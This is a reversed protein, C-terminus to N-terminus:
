YLLAWMVPSQVWQPRSLLSTFCIIDQNLAVSVIVTHSIAATSDDECHSNTYFQIYFSSIFVDCDPSSLWLPRHHLQKPPNYMM